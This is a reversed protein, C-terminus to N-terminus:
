WKKVYKQVIEVYKQVNNVITWVMNTVNRLVIKAYKPVTTVSNKQVTATVLCINLHLDAYTLVISVSSSVNWFLRIWKEYVYPAVTNAHIPVIIVRKLVNQM